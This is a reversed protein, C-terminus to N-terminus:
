RNAMARFAAIWGDGRSKTPGPKPTHKAKAARRREMRAAEISRVTANLRRRMNDARLRSEELDFRSAGIGVAEEAQRLADEAAAIEAQKAKTPAFAQAMDRLQPNAATDARQREVAAAWGDSTIALDGRQTMM